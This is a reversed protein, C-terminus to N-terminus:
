ALTNRETNQRRQLEQLLSAAARGMRPWKAPLLLMKKAPKCVGGGWVGLVAWSVGRKV